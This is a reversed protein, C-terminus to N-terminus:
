PSVCRRVAFRSFSLAVLSVSEKVEEDDRKMRGPATSSVGQRGIGIGSRGESGSLERERGKGKRDVAANGTWRVEYGVERLRVGTTLCDRVWDFSV